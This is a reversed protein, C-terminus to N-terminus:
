QSQNKASAVLLRCYAITQKQSASSSNATRLGPLSLVTSENHLFMEM